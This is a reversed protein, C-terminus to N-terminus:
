RSLNQNLQMHPSPIPSVPDVFDPQEPHIGLMRLLMETDAVQEPLSDGVANAAVVRRAHDKIKNTAPAIEGIQSSVTEFDRASNFQRERNKKRTTDSVTM